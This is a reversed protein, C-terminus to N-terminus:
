RIVHPASAIIREVERENAGDDVIMGPWDIALNGPVNDFLQPADPRGADSADIVAPMEQYEVSVLEAADMAQLLTEAIVVAVAEGVHRVKERALPDRQSIIA